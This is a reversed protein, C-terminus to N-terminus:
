EDEDEDNDPCYITLCARYNGRNYTLDISNDRTFGGMELRDDLDMILEIVDSVSRKDM